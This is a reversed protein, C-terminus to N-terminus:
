SRRVQKYNISPNDIKCAFEFDFYAVLKHVEVKQVCLLVHGGYLVHHQAHHCQRLCELVVVGGYALAQHRVTAPVEGPGTEIHVGLHLYMAGLSPQLPQERLDVTELRTEGVNVSDLLQGLLKQHGISHSPQLQNILLQSKM